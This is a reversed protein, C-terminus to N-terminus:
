FPWLFGCWLFDVIKQNLARDKDAFLLFAGNIAGLQSFGILMVITQMLAVQGLDSLGLTDMFLVNRGFAVISVITNILVYRYSTDFINNLSSFKM